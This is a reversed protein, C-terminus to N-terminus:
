GYEMSNDGKRCRQSVNYKAQSIKCKTNYKTIYKTKINRMLPCLIYVNQTLQIIYYFYVINQTLQMIYYM